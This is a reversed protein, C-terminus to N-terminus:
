DRAAVRNSAEAAAETLHKAWFLISDATANPPLQSLRLVLQVRGAANRVPAVISALSYLEGEELPVDAGSEAASVIINTVERLRAPTLESDNYLSMAKFIAEEAANGGLKFSWGLRRTSALKQRFLEKTGEDVGFAKSIWREIEAEDEWAVFLEGLPPMLPFRAGLVATSDSGEGAVTAVTAVDSGVLAYATVEAGLEAALIGMSRRVQQALTVGSALEKSSPVMLSRPAFGGYGGQFFLLPAVPRRVKMERVAGLVIHHDGGDFVDHFDCDITAVAGEVIPAGISSPTWPIGDFKNSCPRALRRCLDEQDHALINVTFSAASRLREFTYSTKTPLFAILPPNLSVSTFTGVVMGIAEGDDAIGTILAVGTPYHGLVERFQQPDIATLTSDTM